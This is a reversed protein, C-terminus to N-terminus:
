LCARFLLCYISYSNNMSIAISLASAWSIKYDLGVKLDPNCLVVSYVAKAM